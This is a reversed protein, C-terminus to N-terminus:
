WPGVGKLGSFWIRGGVDISIATVVIWGALDYLYVRPRLRRGLPFRAWYLGVAICAALSAPLWALHMWRGGWTDGYVCGWLFGLTGFWTGWFVAALLLAAALLHGFLKM